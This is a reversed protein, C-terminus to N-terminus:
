RRPRAPSTRDGGPMRNGSPGPAVYLFVPSNYLDGARAMDAPQWDPLAFTNSIVLAGAPLEAELKPQLKAMGGPYLYCVVLAAEQLPVKMFDRRYLSPKPPRRLLQVLKSFLWPLPSLECGVVQAEPFRKTLAFALGGWGSGLDFLQGREIAPLREPPIMALMTERVRPTTPVPSIGTVITYALTLAIALLVLALVSYEFLM